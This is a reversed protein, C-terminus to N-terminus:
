LHPWNGKKKQREDEEDGGRRLREKGRQSRERGREQKRNARNHKEIRWGEKM